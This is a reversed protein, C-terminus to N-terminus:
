SWTTGGVHVGSLNLADALLVPVPISNLNSRSPTRTGAIRIEGHIGLFVTTSRTNSWAEIGAVRALNKRASSGFRDGRSILASTNMSGFTAGTSAFRLRSESALM